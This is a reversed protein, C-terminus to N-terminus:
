SQMRRSLVDSNSCRIKLIIQKNDIEIICNISYHCNSFEIHLFHLLLVAEVAKQGIKTVTNKVFIYTDSHGSITLKGLHKYTNGSHLEKM